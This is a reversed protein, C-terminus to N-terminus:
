RSSIQSLPASPLVSDVGLARARVSRATNCACIQSFFTTLANREGSDRPVLDTYVARMRISRVGRSVAYGFYISFGLLVLVKGVPSLLWKTYAPVIMEGFLRKKTNPLRFQSTRLEVSLNSSMSARNWEEDDDPSNEALKRQQAHFHTHAHAALIPAFVVLQSIYDIVVCVACTGCFDTIQASSCSHLDRPDNALSLRGQRRM